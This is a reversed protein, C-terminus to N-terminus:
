GGAPQDETGAGGNGCVRGFRTPPFMGQNRMFAALSRGLEIRRTRTQVAETNLWFLLLRPITGFPYGFSADKKTDWGPQITLTLHGNRRLSRPVDGPNSHPLTCQVLQRAMFALEIEDPTDRITLAADIFQQQTPTTARPPLLKQVFDTDGARVLGDSRRQKPTKSM